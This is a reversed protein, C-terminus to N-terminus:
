QEAPEDRGLRRAAWDRVSPDVLTDFRSVERLVREDWERALFRVDDPTWAVV